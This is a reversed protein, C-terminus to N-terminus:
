RDWPSRRRHSEVPETSAWVRRWRAPVPEAERRGVAGAAGAAAATAATGIAGAPLEEARRLSEWWSTADEDVLRGVEASLRRTFGRVDEGPTPRLPRGYRVSVAPRGPIPWARGRPMAAYSGRVGVPVVPLDRAIALHAAGLRFRHRAGDTSRTGEPFIVLNWGDDLLDGPTNSPSGGRREIPVTAFMLATSVARWWNEFFYDAAATVATRARWAPPLSCLLLPADLHSAHNAVFLVPPRLEALVDLGAVRPSLQSHLLPKLGGAQAAARLARATPTRAWATPFERPAPTPRFPEASRPVAPRSGWRFGRAIDRLGAGNKGSV